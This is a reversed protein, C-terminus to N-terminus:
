EEANNRGSTGVGDFGEDAATIEKSTTRFMKIGFPAAIGLFAVSFLFPMWPFKFEPPPPEGGQFAAVKPKKTGSEATAEVDTWAKVKGKRRDEPKPAPAEDALVQSPVSLTLIAFLSFLRTM